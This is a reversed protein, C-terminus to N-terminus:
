CVNLSESSTLCHRIYTASYKLSDTGWGWSAYIMRWAPLARQQDALKMLADRTIHGLMLVLVAGQTTVINEQTGSISLQPPGQRTPSWLSTAIALLVQRSRCTLPYQM